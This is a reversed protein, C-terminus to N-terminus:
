KTVYQVIVVKYIRTTRPPSMYQLFSDSNEDRITSSPTTEMGNEDETLVLTGISERKLHSLIDLDYPLVRKKSLVEAFISFHSGIRSGSAFCNPIVQSCANLEKMNMSISKITKSMSTVIDIAKVFNSDIEELYRTIVEDTPNMKFFDCLASHPIGGNM